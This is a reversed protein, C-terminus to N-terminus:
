HKERSAREKRIREAEDKRKKGIAKNLRAEEDKWKQRQEKIWKDHARIQQQRKKEEQEHLQRRKSAREKLM